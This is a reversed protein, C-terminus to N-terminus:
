EFININKMLWDKTQKIIMNRQFNDNMLKFNGRTHYVSVFQNYAYVLSYKKYIILSEKKFLPKKNRLNVQNHFILLLNRLDDKTKIGDNNVKSWFTSAHNTCDPCPLARCINKMLGIIQYKHEAYKDEKVKEALTHFFLWINPGWNNTM